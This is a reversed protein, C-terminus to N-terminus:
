QTQTHTLNVFSHGQHGAGMSMLVFWSFLCCLGIETPLLRSKALGPM